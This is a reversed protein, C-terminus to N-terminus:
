WSAFAVLLRKRGRWEALEHPVGDLDALTFPPATLADLAQRRAEAPLAVALVAADADVEVARGLAGAVAALDLGDGAFLADRDRVPVCVDDRCIGEPKLEWGLAQPLATPTVVIRGDVVAGDVVRPAEDIVTVQVM